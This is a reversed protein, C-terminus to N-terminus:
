INVVNPPPTVPPLPLMTELSQTFANGGSASMQILVSLFNVRVTYTPYGIQGLVLCFLDTVSERERERQTHTHTKTQKKIEGGEKERGM